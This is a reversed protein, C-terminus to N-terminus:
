QVALLKVTNVGDIHKIKDTLTNFDTNEMRATVTVGAVQNIPINQNITLVNAGAKALTKLIESLIGSVDRLEFYLTFLHEFSTDSYDFVYDKYKYFASRSLLVKDLAESTKKCEGSSLLRKVELVKLVVEPVVKTNVLVYGNDM